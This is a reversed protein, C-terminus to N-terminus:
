LRPINEKKCRSLIERLAALLCSNEEPMRVAARYWLPNLGHFNGCNRLLIGYRELAEDLPQPARFLLFNAEGPVVRLEMASLERYMRSREKAILERVRQIYKTEHLAALGAEQAPVSVNWPPGSVRMCELFTKDACLAYGLRIGACGYLKTFARVILLDPFTTLMNKLTFDGPRNLFDTFCEDLILRCHINRCHEAIRILLEKPISTGAPNNPQCLFLMDTGPLLIQLFTEDMRFDRDERLPYRVIERCHFLSLANEYEAFAPATIVARQPRQATVARFILDSAGAGCLVFDPSLEEAHAIAATLRRCFPDPYRDVSEAAHCIALRVGDPVGLPSVSASFDLKIEDSPNGGHVTTLRSNVVTTLGNNVVTTLGNNVPIFGNQLTM